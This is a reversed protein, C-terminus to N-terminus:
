AGIASKALLSYGLYFHCLQTVVNLYHMTNWARKFEDDTLKDLEKAGRDWHILDGYLFTKILPEPRVSADPLDDSKWNNADCVKKDALYTLLYQRLQGHAGNWRKQVELRQDRDADRQEYIRRGIVKRVASYSAREEPSFLQRFLVTTGRISERPPFEATISEQNSGDDAKNWRVTV